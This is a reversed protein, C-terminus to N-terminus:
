SDREDRQRERRSLAVKVLAAVIVALGAATLSLYVELESLACPRRDM